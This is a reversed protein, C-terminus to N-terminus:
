SSRGRPACPLLTVKRSPPRCPCSARLARRARWCGYCTSRPPSCPSVSPGPDSRHWSCWSVQGACPRSPPPPPPPPSPAVVLQAPHASGSARSSAAAAYGAVSYGGAPTPSAASPSSARKLLPRQEDGLGLSWRAATAVLARDGHPIADWVEQTYTAPPLSWPPPPRSTECYERVRCLSAHICAVEHTDHTWCCPFHPTDSAAVVSPEWPGGKRYPNPPGNPINGMCSCPLAHVYRCVREDLNNTWSLWRCGHNATPASVPSAACSVAPVMVSPPSSSPTTAGGAM